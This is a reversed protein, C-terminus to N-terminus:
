LGGLDRYLNLDDCSWERRLAAPSAYDRCTALEDGSPDSFASVCAEVDVETFSNGCEENGFDAMNQCMAQCANDCGGALVAVATLLVHVRM